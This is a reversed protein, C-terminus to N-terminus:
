DKQRIITEVAMVDEKNGLQLAYIGAGLGELELQVHNSLARVEKQYICQGLANTINVTYFEQPTFHASELIVAGTFMFFGGPFLHSKVNM